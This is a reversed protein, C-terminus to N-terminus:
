PTPRRGNAQQSQSNCDRRPCPHRDTKLTTHQWTSTVTDPQDSTWLLGVLHSTDTITFGGCYPHSPGSNATSGYYFFFIHRPYAIGDKSDFTRIRSAAYIPCHLLRQLDSRCFSNSSKLNLSESINCWIYMYIYIYRPYLPNTTANVVWGM